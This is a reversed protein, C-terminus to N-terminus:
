RNKSGQRYGRTLPSLYKSGLHCALCGYIEHVRYRKRVFDGKGIEMLDQPQEKFVSAPQAVM